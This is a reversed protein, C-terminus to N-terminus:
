NKAEEKTLSNLKFIEQSLEQILGGPPLNALVADDLAKYTQNAAIMFDQGEIMVIQGTAPDIYNEIKAVGFKVVLLSRKAGSIQVDVPADPDKGSARFDTTSDEIFASIFRDLGRLHFVTPNKPDPDNKSIFKVTEATSIGKYM